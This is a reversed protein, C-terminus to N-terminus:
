GRSVEVAVAVTHVGAAKAGVPLDEVEERRRGLRQREILHGENIRDRLGDQGKIRKRVKAVVCENGRLAFGGVVVLEATAEIVVEGRAVSEVEAVDKALTVNDIRQGSGARVDGSKGNAFLM